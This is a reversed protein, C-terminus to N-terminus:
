LWKKRRFYFLMFIGTVSIVLLVLPYSWKWKLEPMYEFNMGYLGAVFTLPIFITAIITLVRMVENTKNSISSLYLDLMGTLMDRFTEITDIVQITHDYVDRLFVRTPENILTLEGRELNSVLERLPWVAKRFMLMERKLDHIDHLTEKEPENLLEEEINAIQEGIKELITFYNDVIADILAYILYDTRSKRIRVRGNKIRERVPNFVDGELEQFSIVFNSGFVLSIQEIKIINKEEDFYPIKLVLFVYDEFDDLKPRQETNLIDELILPHLGFHKGIKEIIEIQHIGDINIWTVTSTDKFPFCEEISKVEKERFNTQDYDLITIRTKETSEKGIHVLTGPPLGAKKSRKKNSRSLLGAKKSRKKNSRSM